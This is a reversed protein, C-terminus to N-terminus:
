SCRRRRRAAQRERDLRRALAAHIQDRLRLGAATLRVLAFAGDLDEVEALGRQRLAHRTPHRLRLASWELGMSEVVATWARAARWRPVEV